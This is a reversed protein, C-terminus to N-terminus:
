ISWRSMVHEWLGGADSEKTVTLVDGPLCREVCTSCHFGATYFSHSDWFILFNIWTIVGLIVNVGQASLSMGQLQMMPGSATMRHWKDNAWYIDDCLSLKGRVNTLNDDFERYYLRGELRLVTIVDDYCRSMIVEYSINTRKWRATERQTGQNTPVSWTVQISAQSQDLSGSHGSYGSVGPM